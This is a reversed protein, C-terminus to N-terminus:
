GAKKTFKYERANLDLNQFRNVFVMAALDLEYVGPAYGSSGDPVPVKVEVPYKKDPLQVYGRQDHFIYTKGDKGTVNRSEIHQNVIEIKM